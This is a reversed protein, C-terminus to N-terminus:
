QAVEKRHCGPCLGLMVLAHGFGVVEPHITAQVAGCRDCRRDDDGTLRFVPSCPPCTVLDPRWLATVGVTGPKLHGCTDFAGTRWHNRLDHLRGRLWLTPEHNGTFTLRNDQAAYRRMLTALHGSM